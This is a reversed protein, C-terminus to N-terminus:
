GACSNNSVVHELTMDLYRALGISAVTSEKSRSTFNTRWLPNLFTYGMICNLGWNLGEIIISVSINSYTSWVHIKYSFIRIRNSMICYFFQPFELLDMTTVFQLIKWQMRSLLSTKLVTNRHVTYKTLITYYETGVVAYTVMIFLQKVPRFIGCAFEEYNQLLFPIIM